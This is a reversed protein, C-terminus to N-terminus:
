ESNGDEETHDDGMMSRAPTPYGSPEDHGIDDNELSAQVAPTKVGPDEAKRLPQDGDPSQESAKATDPGNEMSDGALGASKSVDNSSSAEPAEATKAKAEAALVAEKAMADHRGRKESAILQQSHENGQEAASQLERLLFDTRALLLNACEVHNLETATQLATENRKSVKLFDAGKELLLRLCAEDGVRAAAMLATDGDNDIFDVSAGYDLILGAKEAPLHYAATALPSGNYPGGVTDLELRPARLIENLVEGGDLVAGFIPRTNDGGGLNPNAGWKLLLKTVKVHGSNCAAQLATRSPHMESVNNVDAGRSLLTEVIKLHGQSSAQQLAYGDPSNPNAGADLLFSLIRETGDNASATM